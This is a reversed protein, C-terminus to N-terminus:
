GVVVLSKTVPTLIEIGDAGVVVLDEIRIGGLGSLYIGPEVTLVNGAEVTDKSTRALRPEEHIELGVAHGLNHMVEYGADVLLGRAVADVDRCSVGARLADLSAKQAELCTEYARALEIPLDGTAFTRTCDSCYGDVVCGADVVVTEGTGIARRGPHHHPRAASPGGAVITDFSLAEAGLERLTRELWWAVEAETRGVLHEQGLLEFAQSLVAASRRLAGLEGGDKIARLREVAGQVPVLEVGGGALTRHASFSVQDAEFAVPGATLKRLSEKLFAPLERDAQVAEVGGVARAADVYRGDTLLLAREGDVLVAANSSQFGTLYRVNVSSTILIAPAGLEPLRARLREIRESVSEGGAM